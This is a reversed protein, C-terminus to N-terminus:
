KLFIRLDSITYGSIAYSPSRRRPGFVMKKWKVRCVVRTYSQWFREDSEMTIVPYQMSDRAWFM